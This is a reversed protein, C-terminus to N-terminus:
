KIPSFSQLESAMAEVASMGFNESYSSLVFLRAKKYIPILENRKLPGLYKVYNEIGLEVALKNLVNKYNNDDPGALVLPLNENVIDKVGKFLIDLGKISHIKGAYFIYDQLGYQNDLNEEKEFEDLALGNPIVFPNFDFKLYDSSEEREYQTTFHIAKANKLYRKAFLSYYFKKITESKNKFATPLLAGRPSIIYPIGKQKCLFAGVLM